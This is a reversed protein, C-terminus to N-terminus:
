SHSAQVDACGGWVYSVERARSQLCPLVLTGLTVVRLGVAPLIKSICTPAELLCTLSGIRPVMPQEQMGMAAFNSRMCQMHSTAALATM